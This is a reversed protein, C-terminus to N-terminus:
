LNNPSIFSELDACTLPLYYFAEVGHENTSFQFKIYGDVGTNDYCIQVLFTFTEGPSLYVPYTPPNGNIELLTGTYNFGIGTLGDIADLRLLTNHINQGTFLVEQCNCCLVENPTAPNYADQVIQSSIVVIKRTPM